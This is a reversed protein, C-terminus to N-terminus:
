EIGKGHEITKEIDHLADRSLDARAEHRWEEVSAKRGPIFILTNCLFHSVIEWLPNSGKSFAAEIFPAGFALSDRDHHFGGRLGSFHDHLEVDVVPIDVMEFLRPALCDQGLM